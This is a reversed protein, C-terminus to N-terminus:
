LYIYLVDQISRKCDNGTEIQTVSIIFIVTMFAVLKDGDSKM